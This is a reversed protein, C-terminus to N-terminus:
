ARNLAKLVFLFAFIALGIAIMPRLTPSTLGILIFAVAILM